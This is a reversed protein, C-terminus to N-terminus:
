PWRGAVEARIRRCVEGESGGADIAACREPDGRAIALFAERLREHFAAGMREYRDGGGRMSARRLGEDVPLDLILTLDPRLDDLALAHLAATFDEGAGQVIGQYARTSDAFRDCVVWTGADLAPGITTLVHDRRAAVHLLAETRADWRDTAGGVLLNRLTEAGPAGGPERTTLVDLGREEALWSALRRVQTSKGTGEGGEFTIFRAATM